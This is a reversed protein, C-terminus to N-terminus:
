DVVEFELDEVKSNWYVRIKPTAGTTLVYEYLKKFFKPHKIKYQDLIKETISMTEVETM